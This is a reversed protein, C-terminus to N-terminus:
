VCMDLLTSIICPDCLAPGASAGSVGGTLRQESWSQLVLEWLSVEPFRPLIESLSLSLVSDALWGFALNNEYKEKCGKGVVCQERVGPTLKAQETRNEEERGFFM